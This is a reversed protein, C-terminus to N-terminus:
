PPGRPPSSAHLSNQLTLLLQGSLSDLPSLFRSALGTGRPKAHLPRPAAPNSQPFTTHPTHCGTLGPLSASVLDQFPTERCATPGAYEGSAGRHRSLLRPTRHVHDAGCGPSRGRSPRLSGSPNLHSCAPPASAPHPISPSVSDPHGPNKRRSGGRKSRGGKDQSRDRFSGPFRM